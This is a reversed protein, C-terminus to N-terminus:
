KVGELMMTKLSSKEFKKREDTGSKPTMKIEGIPTLDLVKEVRCGGKEQSHIKRKEREV